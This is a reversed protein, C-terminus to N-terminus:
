DPIDAATIRKKVNAPVEELIEASPDQPAGYIFVLTDGASENALKLPTQPEVVVISRPPLVHREQEEGLLMTLEGELVVFIEEQVLQMHRRGSVGPPYLWLNARSSTLRALRSVEVIGRVTDEPRWSPHGFELSDGRIVTFGM